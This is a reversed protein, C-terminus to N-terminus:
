INKSSVCFACVQPLKGFICTKPTHGRPAYWINHCSIKKKHDKKCEQYKKYNNSRQIEKSNQTVVQKIDANTSVKATKTQFM